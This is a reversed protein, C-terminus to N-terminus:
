PTSIYRTAAHLIFSAFNSNLRAIIKDGAVPADGGSIAHRHDAVVRL